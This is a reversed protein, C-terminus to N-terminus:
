AHEPSSLVPGPQFTPLRLNDWGIRQGVHYDSAKYKDPLKVIAEYGVQVTLEHAPANVSLIAGQMRRPRGVLPEVYNGGLEVRDVKWASARITGRVRARPALAPPLGGALAFTHAYNYGNIRLTILGNAIQDVIFTPM